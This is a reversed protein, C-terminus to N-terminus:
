SSSFLSPTPISGGHKHLLISIADTDTIIGTVNSAACFSGLYILYAILYSYFNFLGIKLPRDKYEILKKELDAIDIHGNADEGIM